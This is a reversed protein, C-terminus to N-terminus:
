AKYDLIIKKNMFDDGVAGSKSYTRKGSIAGSLLKITYDTLEISKRLLAACKENQRNIDQILGNIRSRLGELERGEKGGMMEAITSLNIVKEKLGYHNGFLQVISRRSEEFDRFEVFFEKERRIVGELKELDNGILAKEKERLLALIRNLHETEDNLVRTLYQFIGKMTM